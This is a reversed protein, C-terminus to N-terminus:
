TVPLFGVILEEREEGLAVRTRHSLTDFGINLWVHGFTILSLWILWGLLVKKKM